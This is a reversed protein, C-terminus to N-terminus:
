NMQPACPQSAQGAVGLDYFVFDSQDAKAAGALMMLVLAAVATIACGVVASDDAISRGRVQAACRPTKRAVM